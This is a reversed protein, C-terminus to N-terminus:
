KNEKEKKDYGKIMCHVKYNKFAIVKLVFPNIYRETLGQVILYFFPAAFGGLVMAITGTSISQRTTSILDNSDMVSRIGSYNKLAYGVLQSNGSESFAFFIAPWQQALGRAPNIAATGGLIGMWVSLAIIFMILLDRYKNNLNPSFIPFLLISTMVMEIFFIWTSGKGILTDVSDQSNRFVEFVKVASSISNIPNNALYQDGTTSHGVAYIILGATISGLFQITIKYTTYWGDHRGSLYRYLSVSPNLDCSWRLFLFLCIAVAVFGAYFGVIIPHILYEELMIFKSEKVVVITSLGALLLSILITGVYESVGHIIWTLLDKPKEAESRKSKSLKFFSFIASTEEKLKNIFGKKEKM